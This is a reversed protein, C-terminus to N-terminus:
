FFGQKMDLFIQGGKGQVCCDDFDDWEMGTTIPCNNNGCILDDKCEDDHDCDGEWESCPNYKTCCSSGGDCTISSTTSSPTPNLEPILIVNRM